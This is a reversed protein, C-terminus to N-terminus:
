CFVFIITFFFTFAFLWSFAFQKSSLFGGWAALGLSLVALVVTFLLKGGFGQYDFFEKSSIKTGHDSM